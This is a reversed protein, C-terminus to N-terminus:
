HFIGIVGDLISGAVKRNTACYRLWQAVATGRNSPLNPFDEKKNRRCVSACQCLCFYIVKKHILLKKEQNRRNEATYETGKERGQCLTQAILQHLTVSPWMQKPISFFRSGNESLFPRVSLSNANWRYCSAQDLSQYLGSVSGSLNSFSGEDIQLRKWVPCHEDVV